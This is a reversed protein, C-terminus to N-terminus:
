ADEMSEFTWGELGREKFQAYAEDIPDVGFEHTVAFYRSAMASGFNNEREEKSSYVSVQAMYGTAVENHSWEDSNPKNVPRLFKEMKMGTVLIYAEPAIMGGKRAFAKIAM